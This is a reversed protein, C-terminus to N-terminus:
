QRIREAPPEAGQLAPNAATKMLDFNEQSSLRPDHCWGNTSADLWDILSPVDALAPKATRRRKLRNRM